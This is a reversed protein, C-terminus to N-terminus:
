PALLAQCGEALLSLLRRARRLESEDQTRQRVQATVNQLLLLVGAIRDRSDRWPVGTATLWVGARDAGPRHCFEEPGFRRGALAERLATQM